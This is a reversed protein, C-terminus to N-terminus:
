PTQCSLIALSAKPCTPSLEGRPCIFDSFGAEHPSKRKSIGVSPGNLLCM